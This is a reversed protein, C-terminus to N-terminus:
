STARTPLAEIWDHAWTFIDPVRGIIGERQAPPLAGAAAVASKMEGMGAYEIIKVEVGLYKQRFLDIAKYFGTREELLKTYLESVIKLEGDSLKYKTTVGSIVLGQDIAKRLDDLFAAVLGEKVFREPVLFTGVSTEVKVVRVNDIITYEFEIPILSNAMYIPIEIEGRRYNLLGTAALAILYNTKATLVALPEIDFGVINSVVCRLTDESPRARKDVEQIVLSLFTGTGCGPDLVKVKCPESLKDSLGSEKIIPEALWDPTAYIGLKQRVEKRPILEEYLVKLMDRASEISLYVLAIDYELLKDIIRRLLDEIEDDWEELYWSFFSKEVFNKIGLGEFLKDNEIHEFARRFENPDRIEKLYDLYAVISTNYFKSAIEAAILKLV